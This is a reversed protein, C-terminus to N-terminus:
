ELRRTSRAGRTSTGTGAYPRDVARGQLVLIGQPGSGTGSLTTTVRVGRAGSVRDSTPTGTSTSMSPLGRLRSTVIPSESVWPKWLPAIKLVSMEYGAIMAVSSPHYSCNRWG